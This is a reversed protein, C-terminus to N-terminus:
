KTGKRTTKTGAYTWLQCWYWGEERLMCRGQHECNSCTRKPNITEPAERYALNYLSVPVGTVTALKTAAREAQDYTEYARMPETADKGQTAILYNKRQKTAM